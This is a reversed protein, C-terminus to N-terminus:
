WVEPVAGLLSKGDPTFSEPGNVMQRIEANKISPLRHIIQKLVDEPSLLFTNICYREPQHFAALHRNFAVESCSLM